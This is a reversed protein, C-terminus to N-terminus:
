IELRNKPPRYANARPFDFSDKLFQIQKEVMYNFVKLLNNHEGNELPFGVDKGLLQISHHIAEITSFCNPAPQKRVRFQSPAPPTFCIRPLSILNQSQRVMKGATAWTGDIVFIVPTKEPQFIPQTNEKTSIDISSNGPYLIVPSLNDDSVIQNVRPNNSFDQGAILESNKLTLHSMRGTAIRRREEIPHILIIFKIKSDFPQIQSCYCSVEPQRCTMCLNRYKVSENEQQARRQRFTELNM